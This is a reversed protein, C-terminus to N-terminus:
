FFLDTTSMGNLCAHYCPSRQAKTIPLGRPDTHYPMRTLVRLSLTFTSQSDICTPRQDNLNETLIHPDRLASMQDLRHAM